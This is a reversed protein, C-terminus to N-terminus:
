RRGPLYYIVPQWSNTAVQRLEILYLDELRYRSIDWDPETSPKHIYEQLLPKCLAIGVCSRAVCRSFGRSSDPSSPQSKPGASFSRYHVISSTRPRIGPTSAQGSGFSEFTIM